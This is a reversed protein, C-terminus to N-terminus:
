VSLNLTASQWSFSGATPGEKVVYQEFCFFLGM